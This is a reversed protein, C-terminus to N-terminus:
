VGAFRFKGAALMVAAFDASPRASVQALKADAPQAESLQRQPALDGTDDLGAPLGRLFDHHLPYISSAEVGPPQVRLWPGIVNGSTRRNQPAFPSHLLSLILKVSGTASKTVRMRLEMRARWWFSSTGAELSFVSIARM